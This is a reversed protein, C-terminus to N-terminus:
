GNRNWALSLGIAATALLAGLAVFAFSVEVHQQQIGIEAPLGRFVALLQSADTAHHYSGGTLDAIQQLAGDNIELVAGRPAGGGGGGFGPPGGGGGFSDNGVQNRTCSLSTPNTTGFGITYIRVGRAAAQKAAAIPDFGQTTAGDTLLVVIDPQYQGAPPAGPPSSGVDIGSRAVNPDVGAIADVARLLATGIATGRGTTLGDIATNLAKHDTTPPVLIQALGSFVVLGIRTGGPQDEVFTRAVKQAAALRNPAVDTSCMSGSVDLTLIISTRNIPLGVVAQPRASGIALSFLALLLLAFPIRRRWRSQSPLAERILALSAYSVAFRRRRRRQWLYAALLLPPVLLLVLAVPWAFTM